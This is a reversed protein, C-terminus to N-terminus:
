YTPLYLPDSTRQVDVLIRTMDLSMQVLTAVRSVLVQLEDPNSSFSNTEPDPRQTM